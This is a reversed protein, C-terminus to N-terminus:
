KQEKHKETLKLKSQTLSNLSEKLRHQQENISLTSLYQFSSGTEQLHHLLNKFTGIQNILSAVKNLNTTIMPQFRNFLQLNREQKAIGINGEDFLRTWWSGDRLRDLRDYTQKRGKGALDLLTEFKGDIVKLTWYVIEAEILLKETQDVISKM